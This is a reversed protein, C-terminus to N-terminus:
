RIIRKLDQTSPYGDIGETVCSYRGPFEPLDPYLPHDPIMYRRIEGVVDGSSRETVFLRDGQLRRGSVKPLNDMYEYEVIFDATLETVSNVKYCGHSPEHRVPEIEPTGISLGFSVCEESGPPYYRVEFLDGIKPLDYPRIGMESVLAEDASRLSKRSFEVRSVLDFFYISTPKLMLRNSRVERLEISDAEIPQSPLPPINKTCFTHFERPPDECALLLLASITVLLRGAHSKDVTHFRM